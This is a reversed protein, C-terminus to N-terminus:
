QARTFDDPTGPQHNLELLPPNFYNRATLRALLPPAGEVTTASGRAAARRNRRKWRHLSARDVATSEEDVNGARRHIGLWGARVGANSRGQRCAVLRGPARM